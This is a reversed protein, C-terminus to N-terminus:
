RLFRYGHGYISKIRTKEHGLKKRINRIHADVTRTNFSEGVGWLVGILANRSVVQDSHKVLENLIIFEANTLKLDKDGLLCVKNEFDFYIEGARFVGDLNRKKFRTNIINIFDKIEFPKNIYDEETIYPSDIREQSNQDKFVIIEPRTQFSNSIEDILNTKKIDFLPIDLLVLNPVREKIANLLSEINLFHSVDYKQNKLALNIVELYIQDDELIYICYEAM